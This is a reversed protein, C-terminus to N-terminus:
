LTSRLARNLPKSGYLTVNAAHCGPRSWSDASLDLYM